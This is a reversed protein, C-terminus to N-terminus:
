SRLLLCYVYWLKALSDKDYACVSSKKPDYTTLKFHRCIKDLEELAELIFTTPRGVSISFLVCTRNPALVAGGELSLLYKEDPLHLDFYTGTTENYYHIKDSKITYNPQLQFFNQVTRLVSCRWSPQNPEIILPIELPM